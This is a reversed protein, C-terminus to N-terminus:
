QISYSIDSAQLTHAESDYIGTVSFPWRPGVWGNVIDRLQDYSLIQAPAQPNVIRRIQTSPLVIVTVAERSKEIEGEFSHVSSGFSGPRPFIRLVAQAAPLASPSAAAPSAAVFSSAAIGSPPLGQPRATSLIYIGSGALAIGLAAIIHPYYKEMPRVDSSYKKSEETYVM